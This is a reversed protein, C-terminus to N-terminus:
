KDIYKGTQKSAQVKCNWSSPPQPLLTEGKNSDLQKTKACEMQKVRGYEMEWLYM